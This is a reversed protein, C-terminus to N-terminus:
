FIEGFFSWFWENLKGDFSRQKKWTEKDLRKSLKLDADFDRTLEMALDPDMVGLALEDNLEFSRNGFNASGIISFVGDVMFTKTHMMTPQYEAIEIGEDLLGQYWHRSAHKVPMADTVDGEALMRIRVGRQRAQELSWQTSGDLTIYPSQIDISKRAAGIALLYM